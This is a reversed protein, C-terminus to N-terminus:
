PIGEHFGRQGLRAAFGVLTLVDESDVALVQMSRVVEEGQQLAGSPLLHRQAHTGVGVAFARAVDDDLGGVVLSQQPPPVPDLGVPSQHVLRGAALHAVDVQRVGGVGAVGVEVAHEERLHVFLRQDDVLARVTAALGGVVDDLHQAAFVKRAPGVAVPQDVVGRGTLHLPGLQHHDVLVRAGATVVQRVGEAAGANALQQAPAGPAPQDADVGIGLQHVPAGQGHREEAEEVGLTM